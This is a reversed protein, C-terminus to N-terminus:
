SEPIEFNELAKRHLVFVNNMSFDMDDAIQEWARCDIYRLELVMQQEPDELKGIREMIDRKMNLLDEIDKGIEQQLDVIMVIINEMKHPDKSPNGPMDSITATARVALDNLSDVQRLKSNIRMDMRYAKMLYEKSATQQRNM